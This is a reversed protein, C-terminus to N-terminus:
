GDKTTFESAEKIGMCAGETTGTGTAGITFCFFTPRQQFHATFV